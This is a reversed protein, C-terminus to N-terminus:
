EIGHEEDRALQDHEEDQEAVWRLIAAKCAAWEELGAVNDIVAGIGEHPGYDLPMESLLDYYNQETYPTRAM